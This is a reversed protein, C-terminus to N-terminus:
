KVIRMRNVHGFPNRNSKKFPASGRGMQSFNNRMGRMEMRNAKRHVQRDNGSRNGSWRPKSGRVGQVRDSSLHRKNRPTEHQTYGREDRTSGEITESIIQMSGMKGPYRLGKKDFFDKAAWFGSGRIHGNLRRTAIFQRREEPYSLLSKTM